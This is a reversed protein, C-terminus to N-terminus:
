GNFITEIGHLDVSPSVDVDVSLSGAMLQWQSLPPSETANGAEAGVIM